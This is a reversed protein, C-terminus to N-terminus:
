LKKRGFPFSVSLYPLAFFGADSSATQWVSIFGFDFAFKEGMFRAGYISLGNIDEGGFYYNDMM